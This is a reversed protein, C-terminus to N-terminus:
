VVKAHQVSSSQYKKSMSPQTCSPLFTCTKMGPPLYLSQSVHLGSRSILLCISVKLLKRRFLLLDPPLPLSYALIGTPQGRVDVVWQRSHSSPRTNDITLCPDPSNAAYCLPLPAASHMALAIPVTRVTRCSSQRTCKHNMGLDGELILLSEMLMDQYSSIGRSGNNITSAM